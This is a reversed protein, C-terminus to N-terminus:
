QTTDQQVDGSEDQFTKNSTLTNDFPKGKQPIRTPKGQKKAQRSKEVLDLVVQKWAKYTEISLPYPATPCLISNHTNRTRCNPWRCGYKELFNCKDHADNTCLPCLNKDTLFKKRKELTNYASDYCIFSWHKGQCFVCPKKTPMFPLRYCTAPISEFPPLDTTKARKQRKNRSSDITSTHPRKETDPTHPTTIQPTLTPHDEIHSIPHFTREHLKNHPIQLTHSVPTSNQPIHPNSYSHPSDDYEGNIDLPITTIPSQSRGGLQQIREILRRKEQLYANADYQAAREKDEVTQLREQLAGLQRQRAKREKRMSDQLSKQMQTLQPTSTNSTSPPNTLIPASRSTHPAATTQPINQILSTHPIITTLPTRPIPNQQPPTQALKQEALKQEAQRQRYNYRNNIHWLKKIVQMIQDACHPTKYLFKEAAHITDQVTLHQVEIEESYNEPFQGLLDKSETVVQEAMRIFSHIVLIRNPLTTKSPIKQNSVITRDSHVLEDDSIEDDTTPVESEAM